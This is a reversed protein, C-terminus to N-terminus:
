RDTYKNMYANMHIARVANQMGEVATVDLAGAQVCSLAFSGTGSYLDLCRRLIM